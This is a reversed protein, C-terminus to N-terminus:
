LDSAKEIGTNKARQNDAATFVVFANQKVM